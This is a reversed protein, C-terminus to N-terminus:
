QHSDSAVKARLCFPYDPLHDHWIVKDLSAKNTIVDIVLRRRLSPKRLDCDVLIVRAGGDATV